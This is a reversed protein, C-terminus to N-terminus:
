QPKRNNLIRDAIQYVEECDDELYQTAKALDKEVWKHFDKGKINHMRPMNLNLITAVSELGMERQWGYECFNYEEKIDTFLSDWYRGTRVTPVSIGLIWSRKVLFPLDFGKINWGVLEKRPRAGSIIDKFTEWFANIMDKESPRIDIIITDATKYGIGCVEATHPNLAAKEEKKKWFAAQHKAAIESRKVPDKTNGYKVGTTECLPDYKNNKRVLSLVPRTEIDWALMHRQISM